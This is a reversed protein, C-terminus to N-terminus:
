CRLSRDLSRYQLAEAVHAASIAESADLDALTRAVRLIGLRGRPSLALKEWAADLLRQGAGDLLCHHEVEEPGLAANLPIPRSGQHRRAQIARAEAVRAAAWASKDEPRPPRRLEALTPRLVNGVLDFRDALPGLARERFQRVRGASCRCPRERDDLYGCPCPWLTAVLLFRAPFAAAGRARALTVFGRDLPEVLAAVVSPRFRPLDDLLLVGGHALSAEGPRPRRGGGVLARRGAGPDLRRFPRQHDLGLQGPVLAQVPELERAEAETLPPLLGPLCTALLTKGAGPPGILLLPHGGAAAILLARKAAEHGRVVALDPAEEGRPDFGPASEALHDAPIM